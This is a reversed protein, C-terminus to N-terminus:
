VAGQLFAWVMPLSSLAGLSGILGLQRWLDVRARASAGTLVALSVGCWFASFTAVATSVALFLLFWTM